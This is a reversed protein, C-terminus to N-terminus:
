RRGGHSRVPVVARVVPVPRPLANALLGAPRPPCRRPSDLQPRDGARRRVERRDHRPRRVPDGRGGARGATYLRAWSIRAESVGCAIVGVVDLPNGDPQAGQWRWDSWITEGDATFRVLRSHSDPVGEYIASWNSRVQARGHFARDPHARQESEYDDQFCDLFAELDHENMAANLREVVRGPGTQGDATM